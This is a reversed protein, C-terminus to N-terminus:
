KFYKNYDFVGKKIVKEKKIDKNKHILYLGEIYSDKINKYHNIMKDDLGLEKLYDPNTIALSKMIRVIKYYHQCRNDCYDFCRIETYGNDQKIEEIKTIETHEKDLYYDNNYDVDYFKTNTITQKYGIVKDRKSKNTKDIRDNYQYIKSINRKKNITKNTILMTENIKCYSCYKILFDNENDNDTKVIDEKGVFKINNAKEIIDKEKIANRYTKTENVNFLKIMYDVSMNSVDITDKKHKVKIPINKVNIYDEFEIIFLDISKKDYAYGNSRLHDKLYNYDVNSKTKTIQNIALYFSYDHKVISKITPIIKGKKNLPIENNVTKDKIIKM